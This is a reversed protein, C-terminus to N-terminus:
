RGKFFELSRIRTTPGWTSVGVRHRGPIPDISVRDLMPVDGLTVSCWGDWYRLSLMRGEKLNDLPVPDSQYVLRDYRELRALVADRGAPLVLLTWGSLGDDEGEGQFTIGLKPAAGGDLEVDVRQADVGKTLTPKLWLLNSPSDKPFGPRVTFFRWKVGGETEAGYWAKNKAKFSGVETRTKSRYSRDDLRAVRKWNPESVAPRPGPVDPPGADEQFELRSGDPRSIALVAGATGGRNRIKLLVKNRGAKLRATMKIADAAEEYPGRWRLDSSANSGRGKYSGIRRDNVFVVLDDDARAHVLVDVDESVTVHTLAYIAANDDGYPKYDFRLWGSPFLRINKHSSGPRWDPWPDQWPLRTFERRGAGLSRPKKEFDIELEPPFQNAGPDARKAFFPGVVKWAMVVGLERRLEAADELDGRESARYLQREVVDRPLQSNPYATFRGDFSELQERGEFADLERSLLWRDSEELPFGFGVLDDFAEPGFARVLYHAVSRMVAPERGDRVPAERYERFFRRLPSWDHGGGRVSAYKEVFHLFLGASPGYNQIRWYELDRDLFYRKFASLNDDFSHLADGKQELAEHAFAAGLNALGEGFGGHTPRTDDVCHTLEHYLLGTDVRVPKSPSPNARGIDIIKGGGIGGGFDFLEKFYVTVRDGDPNPIRGFLDTLYVYALDFRLKSPDPIGEVLATPGVFLFCHSAVVSTRAWSPHDIWKQVLALQDPPVNALHLEGVEELRVLAKEYLEVGHVRQLTRLCALSEAYRKEEALDGAVKFLKETKGHREILEAVAAEQAETLERLLRDRLDDVREMARDAADLAGIVKEDASVALAGGIEQLIKLAGHLQGRDFMRGAEIRFIRVQERRIRQGVIQEEVPTIKPPDLKGVEALKDRVRAKIRDDRAARLTQDLRKWAGAVDGSQRLNDADAFAADLRAAGAAGAFAPVEISTIATLSDEDVYETWRGGLPRLPASGPPIFAVRIGLYVDPGLNHDNPLQLPISYDVQKGARWKSTPPDLVHDVIVLNDADVGADMDADPSLAIRLQYGVKFNEEPICALRLEFKGDSSITSAVGDIWVPIPEQRPDSSFGLALAAVLSPLLLPLVRM